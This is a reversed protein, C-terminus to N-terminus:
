LKCACQNVTCCLKHCIICIQFFDRLYSFSNSNGNKRELVEVTVVNKGPRLKALEAVDTVTNINRNQTPIIMHGNMAMKYKEQVVVHRVVQPGLNFEAEATAFRCTMEKWPM